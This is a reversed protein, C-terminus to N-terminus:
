LMGKDALRSTLRIMEVLQWRLMAMGANDHTLRYAHFSIMQSLVFDTTVEAPIIEAHRSSPFTLRDLLLLCFCHRSGAGGLWTQSGTLDGALVLFQAQCQGALMNEFLEVNGLIGVM